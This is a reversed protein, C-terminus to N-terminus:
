GKGKPKAKSNGNNSNVKNNKKGKLAHFEASGPKIGLEKAIHGWGKDKNVKYSEVVKELPIEAVTSIKISLLAEAPKMEKLLGDIKAITVGFEKSLDNKFTALDNTAEKNITNLEADFSADGTNFSIQGFTPFSALILLTFLTKKM